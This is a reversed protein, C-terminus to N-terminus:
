GVLCAIQLRGLRRRSSSGRVPIVRGKGLPFAIPGRGSSSDFEKGNAETWGTYDVKVTAGTEPVEGSGAEIDLFQLGSATTTWEDTVEVVNMQLGNM